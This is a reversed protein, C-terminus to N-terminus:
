PNKIEGTLKGIEKRAEAEKALREQENLKEDLILEIGTMVIPFANLCEQETLEHIGKSLISYLARQEVLFTPLHNKLLIVKEDMRSKQYTNDDWNPEKKAKIYAKSILYEFIRRLYVFSGIGVGHSVLGISRSFEGFLEAPLIKRYKKINQNAIDAMSPSQGIKMFKNNKIQFTYYIKHAANRSCIFSINFYHDNIFQYQYINKASIRVMNNFADDNITRLVHFVSEKKCDLCYCDMNGRFHEIQIIKVYQEPDILFAKYIPVELFFDIPSPLIPMEKKETM